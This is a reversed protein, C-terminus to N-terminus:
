SDYKFVPGPYPKTPVNKEQKRISVSDIEIEETWASCMIELRNGSGEKSINIIMSIHHEVVDRGVVPDGSKSSSVHFTGDFMTAEIKIDEDEFKRKM